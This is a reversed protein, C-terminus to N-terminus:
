GLFLDRLEGVLRHVTTSPNDNAPDPPEYQALLRAANQLAAAQRTYLEKYITKSNKAYAHGLRSELMTIYDKRSVGSNLYDFHLVYWLEFAENSYAVQINENAALALATNFNEAPFSDRDFVCWVQQYEAAQRLKLAEKVLNFTNTGIGRVEVVVGQALPFQRFYNPETKEGECVILVRQRVRFRDIERQVFRRSHQALARRDKRM